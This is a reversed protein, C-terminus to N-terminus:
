NRVLYSCIIAVASAVNLSEIQQKRVLSPPITIRSQIFSHLKESIGRSENGFMIMGQPASKLDYVSTGSLFTGYIRFPPTHSLRNLFVALDAYHIKLHLLSGMSSQIVKSNYCDVCDKSCIINKIGFWDATRIITGLNGPDQIDDLLLSWSQILEQVNMAPRIIDLVAIVSAPTELSSIREIDRKDAESIEEIMPSILSQNRSLWERTAILQRLRTDGERLVDSVLKDGEM